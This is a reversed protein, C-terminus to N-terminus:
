PHCTGRNPKGLDSPSHVARPGVGQEVCIFLRELSNGTLSRSTTFNLSRVPLSSVDMQGNPFNYRKKPYNVFHIESHSRPLFILIKVVPTVSTCLTFIPAPEHVNM